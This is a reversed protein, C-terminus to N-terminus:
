VRKSQAPREGLHWGVFRRATDPGAAAGADREHHAM